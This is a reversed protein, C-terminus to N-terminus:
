RSNINDKIWKDLDMNQNYIIFNEDSTPKDFMVLAIDLTVRELQDREKTENNRKWRAEIEDVPIDLYILKYASNLSEAIQRATTRESRKLNGLDLVVTKGESLLKKLKEYGESYVTNWDEQTMKVAEFGKEDMVDDMSVIIFGFRNVLEKTLTTKGSFPLGTLIYLM